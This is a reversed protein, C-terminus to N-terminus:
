SASGIADGAGRGLVTVLMLRLDGKFSQNNLYAADIEALERPMSMDIGALQAPGTIGPRLCYVGREVRENILEIQTPLCPRPGVFAMDGRLVNWIQPLEDLKTRRLFRGVKTIQTPAVVHSPHDGTSLKMTRLKILSFLKQYRGVRIQIFLPNGRTEGLIVLACIVSIILAVPLVALAMSIDFLRRM